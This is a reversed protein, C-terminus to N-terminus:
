YLAPQEPFGVEQSPGTIGDMVLSLFLLALGIGSNGSDDSCCLCCWPPFSLIFPSISVPSLFPAISFLVKILFPLLYPFFSSLFSPLFYRPLFAFTSPLSRIFFHSLRFFSGFSVLMKKMARREKSDYREAITGGDKMRALNFVSIGLTIVVVTAYERM